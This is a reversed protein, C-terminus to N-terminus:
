LFSQLPWHIESHKRSASFSNCMHNQPKALLNLPGFFQKNPTAMRWKVLLSWFGGIPKMRIWWIHKERCKQHGFQWPIMRITHFFSNRPRESRTIPHIMTSGPVPDASCWNKTVQYVYLFSHFISSKYNIQWSKGMFYKFYNEMTIYVNVLGPLDCMWFIPPPVQFSGWNKSTGIHIGIPVDTGSVDRPRFRCIQISLNHCNHPCRLVDRNTPSGVLCSAFISTDLAHPQNESKPLRLEHRTWLAFSHGQEKVSKSDKIYTGFFSLECTLLAPASLCWRGQWLRLFASVWCLWCWLYIEIFSETRWWFDGTPLRLIRVLRAQQWVFSWGGPVLTCPHARPDQSM